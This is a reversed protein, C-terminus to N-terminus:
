KDGCDDISMKFTPDDNDRLKGKLQFEGTSQNFDKDVLEFDTPFKAEGDKIGFGKSGFLSFKM